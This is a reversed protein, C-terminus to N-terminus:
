SVTDNFPSTYYSYALHSLHHDCYILQTESGRLTELQSITDKYVKKNKSIIKLRTFFNKWGGKKTSTEIRDLKLEPNEYFCVAKLDNPKIKFEEVLWNITNIPFSSDHKIGTFREEECAGLVKGDKILSAASDHYGCSIGLIYGSVM